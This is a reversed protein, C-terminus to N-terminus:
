WINQGIYLQTPPKLNPNSIPTFLKLNNSVYKIDLKDSSFIKSGIRNRVGSTVEWEVM